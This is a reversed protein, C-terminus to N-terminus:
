SVKPRKHVLKIDLMIVQFGAKELARKVEQGNCLRDESMGIFLVGNIPDFDLANVDVREVGALAERAAPIPDKADKLPGIRVQLILKFKYSDVFKPQYNIAPHRSFDPSNSPSVECAILGMSMGVRHIDLLHTGGLMLPPCDQKCSYEWCLRGLKRAVAYRGHLLWGQGDAMWQVAPAAFVAGHILYLLNDSVARDATLSGDATNWVIIRPSHFQNLVMFFAALEKGNPSFAAGSFSWERDSEICPFPRAGALKGTSLDFIMLHRYAFAIFKGAPSVAAGHAAAASVPVEFEVLQKGTPMEHVRVVRRNQGEDPSYDIVLRNAAAFRLIINEWRFRPVPIEVVPGGTKFSWVVVSEAMRRVNALYQGDPSLACNRAPAYQTGSLEGVQKLNTCDWVGIAKDRDAVDGLAIFRSPVAPYILAASHGTKDDFHILFDPAIKIEESSPDPRVTWIDPVDAAPTPANRKMEANRAEAARRSAENDPRPNPPPVPQQKQPPAPSPPPM